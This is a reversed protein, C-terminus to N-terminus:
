GRPSSYVGSDQRVINKWEDGVVVQQLTHQLEAAVRNLGLQWSTPVTQHLAEEKPYLDFHISTL